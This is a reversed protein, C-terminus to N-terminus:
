QYKPKWPANFYWISTFGSGAPEPVTRGAGHGWQTFPSDGTLMRRDLNVIDQQNRYRVEARCGAPGCIATQPNVTVGDVNSGYMMAATFRAKTLSADPSDTPGAPLHDQVQRRFTVPDRAHPQGPVLPNDPLEQAQQHPPGPPQPGPPQPGPIPRPCSAMMPLLIVVGLGIGRVLHRM